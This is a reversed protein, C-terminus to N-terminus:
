VLEIKYNLKKIRDSINKIHIEDDNNDDGIGMGLEELEHIYDQAESKCVMERAEEETSATGLVIDEDGRVKTVLWM